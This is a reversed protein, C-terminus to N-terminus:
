GRVTWVDLQNQNDDVEAFTIKGQVDSLAIGFAGGPIGTNDLQFQDVFRFEGHRSPAFEALENLHNPDQNFGDGNAVILDGNPALVLGLPGHLDTPDQVVVKGTGHDTAGPDRFENHRPGCGRFFYMQAVKIVFANREFCQCWLM